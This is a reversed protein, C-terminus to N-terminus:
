KQRGRQTQKQTNFDAVDRAKSPIPKIFFLDQSARCHLTGQERPGPVKPLTKQRHQRDRSKLGPRKENLDLQMCLSETGETPLKQGQSPPPM